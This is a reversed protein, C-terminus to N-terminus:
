QTSEPKNKLNLEFMLAESFIEKDIKWEFASNPAERGDAQPVWM